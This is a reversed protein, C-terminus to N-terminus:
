YQQFFTKRKLHNIRIRYRWNWNEIPELDNRTWFKKEFDHKLQYNLATVHFNTKHLYEYTHTVPNTHLNIINSHFRLQAVLEDRRMECRM